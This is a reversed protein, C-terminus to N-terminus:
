RAKPPHVPYPKKRFSGLIKRLKRRMKLNHMLVTDLRSFGERAVHRDLQYLFQFEGTRALEFARALTPTPGIQELKLQGSALKRSTTM